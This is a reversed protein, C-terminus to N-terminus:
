LDSPLLQELSGGSATSATELQDFLMQYQRVIAADIDIKSKYNKDMAIKARIIQDLKDFANPGTSPISGEEAFQNAM